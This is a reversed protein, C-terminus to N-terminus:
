LPKLRFDDVKPKKTLPEALTTSGGRRSYLPKLTRKLLFPSIQRAKSNRTTLGIERISPEVRTKERLVPNVIFFNCVGLDFYVRPGM